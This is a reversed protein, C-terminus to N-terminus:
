ARDAWAHLFSQITEAADRHVDLWDECCRILQRFLRPAALEPPRGTKLPRYGRKLAAQFAAAPLIARGVSKPNLPETKM